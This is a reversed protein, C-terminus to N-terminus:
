AIYNNLNIVQVNSTTVKNKIKDDNMGEHNGVFYGVVFGLIFVLLILLMQQIDKSLPTLYKDYFKM